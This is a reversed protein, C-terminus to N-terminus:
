SSYQLKSGSMINVALVTHYNEVIFRLFGATSKMSGWGDYDRIITPLLDSRLTYIRSLEEAILVKSRDYIIPKIGLAVSYFEIMADLIVYNSLCSM